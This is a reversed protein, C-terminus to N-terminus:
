PHHSGRLNGFSLSERLLTLCLLELATLAPGGLWDLGYM